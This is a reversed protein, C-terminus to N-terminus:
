KWRLRTAILLTLGYLIAGGIGRVATSVMGGQYLYEAYSRLSRIPKGSGRYGHALDLLSAQIRAQLAARCYPDSSFEHHRRLAQLHNLPVYDRFKGDINAASLNDAHHVYTHLPEDIYVMDHRALIRMFFDYDEAGYISEDFGALELCLQRPVTAALRIFNAGCYARYADASRIFYERPSIQEKAQLRQIVQPENCLKENAVGDVHRVIWYNSCVLGVHPARVLVDHHREVITPELSDDSDFFLIHSSTAAKIGVNRPRSPGAGNNEISIVRVLSGYSRVVERTRDTSGDDVVIIEDAAVTQSLASEIATRVFWERNYAPIVIAITPAHIAANPHGAKRM